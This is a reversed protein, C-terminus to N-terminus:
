FEVSSFYDLEEDAELILSLLVENHLEGLGGEAIRKVEVIM